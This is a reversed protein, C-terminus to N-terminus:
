EWAQYHWWTWGELSLHHASETLADGRECVPNERQTLKTSTLGSRQM